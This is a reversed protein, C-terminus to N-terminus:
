WIDCAACYLRSFDRIDGPNYGVVAVETVFTAPDACQIIEKLTTKSTNKIQNYILHSSVFKNNNNGISAVSPANLGTRARKSLPGESPANDVHHPQPPLPPPVPAAMPLTLSLSLSAPARQNRPVYPEDPRERQRM